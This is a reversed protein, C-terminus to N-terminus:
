VFKSIGPLTVLENNGETHFAANKEKQRSKVEQAEKSEHIEVMSKWVDLHISNKIGSFYVLQFFIIKWNLFFILDEFFEFKWFIWIKM